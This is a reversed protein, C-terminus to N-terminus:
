LVGELRQATAFMNRAGELGQSEESVQGGQELNNMVNEMVEAGKDIDGGGAARVADATFVFENKSLRAPVDDAKEQGGIPVFGGEERYDKEMGGMDMLGGEQAYQVEDEDDNIGYLQNLAAMRANLGGAYGIRGGQAKQEMFGTAKILKDLRATEDSTLGERMRKSMLAVIEAMPDVDQSGNGQYGIRGGEAAPLQVVDTSWPGGMQALIRQKEAEHWNLYDSDGEEEEATLGGIISPGLIGRMVNISKPNEMLAKWGALGRGTGIGLGKGTLLGPGFQFLGAMLAAKGFPSKVIKKVAKKAKKFISGLGYRRRGTASDMIGGYAAPVRGGGAGYFYQSGFEPRDMVDRSTLEAPDISWDSAIQTGTADTIGGTGPHLDRPAYYNPLAQGEGGAGGLNKQWDPVFEQFESHSLEGIEAKEIADDIAQLKEDEEEYYSPHGKMKEMHTKRVSRLYMPMTKKGIFKVAALTPGLFMEKAKQPITKEEPIIDHQEEFRTPDAYADVYAQADGGGREAMQQQFDRIDDQQQEQRASSTATELGPQRGGHQYGLRAIGGSAMGSVAQERFEEISMPKVGPNNEQLDFVYQDYQEQLIPDASAMQKSQQSQQVAQEVKAIGKPGYKNYFFRRLDDISQPDQGNNDQRFEDLLIELPQLEFGPIDDFAMQREQEPSKPGQNGTYNIDPAGTDLSTIGYDIAM